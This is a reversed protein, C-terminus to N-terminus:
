DEAGEPASSVSVTMHPRTNAWCCFLARNRSRSWSLTAGSTSYRTARRRRRSGLGMPMWTM